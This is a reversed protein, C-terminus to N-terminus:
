SGQTSIRCFVSKSTPRSSYKVITCSKSLIIFVVFDDPCMVKYLLLCKLSTHLVAVPFIFQVLCCFAGLFISNM